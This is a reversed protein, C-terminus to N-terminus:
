RPDMVLLPLWVFVGRKVKISWQALAAPYQPHLRRHLSGRVNDLPQTQAPLGGLVWMPLSAYSNQSSSGGFPLGLLKNIGFALAIALAAGGITILVWLITNGLAPRQLGVSDWGLKEKRRVIFLVLAAFAFLTAERLVVNRTTWPVHLVNFLVLVLPAVLLAVALGFITWGRTKPDADPM